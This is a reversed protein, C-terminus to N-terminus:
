DETYYLNFVCEYAYEKTSTDISQGGGGCKSSSVNDLSVANYMASKVKQNLKAANLLSDSYSLINFTIADIQNIRGNDIVELVIYEKSKSRPKEGLTISVGSLDSVSKLYAIIQSEIM